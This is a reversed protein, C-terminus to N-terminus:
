RRIRESLVPWDEDCGLSRWSCPDSTVMTMMMVMVVRCNAVNHIVWRLPKSCTDSGKRRKEFTWFIRPCGQCSVLYSIISAVFIAGIRRGRMSWHAARADVVKGTAM